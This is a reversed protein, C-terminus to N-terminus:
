RGLGAPHRRRHLLWLGLAALTTACAAALGPVVWRGALDHAPPGGAPPAPPAPAQIHTAPPAPPEAASTTTPPPAARVLLTASAGINGGGCRGTIAYAGAPKARPVRSSATFTGDPEVTAAVAPVDAFEQTGPFARSLLTVGTACESGPAPPFGDPSPSPTGPPSRRRAPGCPAPRRRSSWREGASPRGV